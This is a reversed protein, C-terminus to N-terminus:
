PNATAPLFPQGLQVLLKANGRHIDYTHPLGDYARAQTQYTGYDWWYKGDLKEIIDNTRLGAAYAPGGARVYARMNGDVTKFLSYLYTPPDGPAFNLGRTWLNQAHSPHTRAWLLIQSWGEAVLPEIQASDPTQAFTRHDHWEGVNWGGCDDLRLGIDLDVGDVIRFTTSTVRIFAVYRKASCDAQNPSEESRMTMFPPTADIEGLLMGTAIRARRTGDDGIALHNSANTPAFLGPNGAARAMPLASVFPTVGFLPRAFFVVGICALIAVALQYPLTRKAIEDTGVGTFNAVWVNATNTPDCVNQVQVVAMVAAVLIPAPLSKSALLATFVAIGVGFPNLPGRYLTLASGFGFLAIYLWPERIPLARALPGLVAAFAPQQTAVLLMGIGFFLLLAPAADEVGRIAAAALTEVFRRPRTALTALVAAILFSPTADLGFAFYLLIPLVPAFLAYWPVRRGDDRPAASAWTAYGRERRFAIVAYILLAVVDIIALMLAYSTLESSTVGFFKTYFKWNAINFIFGLAFSMLFLTAAIRRPVGTTLMIPLVISGVMIIAGLGSLSVFLMATVACLVLAVVLPSDGAYEAALNVLARAIGTDLTVRGLLAGFVVAVYVPALMVAGHGLIGLLPLGRVGVVLAMALAMAPLALLAPVRRTAMGLAFVAFVALLVAAIM